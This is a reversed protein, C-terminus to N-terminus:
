PLFVILWLPYLKLMHCMLWPVSYSPIIQRPRSTGTLTLFPHPSSTWTHRTALGALWAGCRGSIPVCGCACGACVCLLSSCVGTCACLYNHCRVLVPVVKLSTEGPPPPQTNSQESPQRPLPKCRTQCSSAAGWSTSRQMGLLVKELHM